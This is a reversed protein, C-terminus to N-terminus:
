ESLRQYVFPLIESYRLSIDWLAMMRFRFRSMSRKVDTKRVFLQFKVMNWWLHILGWYGWLNQSPKPFIVIEISKSADLIPIEHYLWSSHFTPNVWELQPENDIWWYPHIHWNHKSNRCFSAIVMSEASELHIFMKATKSTRRFRKPKAKLLPKRHFELPLWNRCFQGLNRRFQGSETKPCGM